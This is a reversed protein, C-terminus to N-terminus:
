AASGQTIFEDRTVLRPRKGDGYYDNVLMEAYQERTMTTRGSIGDWRKHLVKEALEAAAEHSMDIWVHTVFGTLTEVPTDNPWNVHKCMAGHCCPSSAMFPTVGDRSNWFFHDQKCKECRYTMVCFAEKHNM